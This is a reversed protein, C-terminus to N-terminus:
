DMSDRSSGGFLVRIYYIIGAFQRKTLEYCGGRSDPYELDDRLYPYDTPGRVLIVDGESSDSYSYPNLIPLPDLSLRLPQVELSSEESHLAPVAASEAASSSVSSNSSSEAQATEDKESSPTSSILDM